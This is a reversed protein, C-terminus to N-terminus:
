RGGDSNFCIINNHFEFTSFEFQQEPNKTTYGNWKNKDLKKIHLDNKLNFTKDDHIKILAEKICWIKIKDKLTQSFEIEKENIYRPAAKLIREHIEEIDLGLNNEFSWAIGILSKSHSISIFGGKDLLPKGNSNYTLKHNPLYTSVLFRVCEKEIIRNESITKTSIKQPFNEKWEDVKLIALQVNKFTFLKTNM